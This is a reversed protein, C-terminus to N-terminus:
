KKGMKRMLDDYAKSKESKKGKVRKGDIETAKLKDAEANLQDILGRENINIKSGITLTGDRITITASINNSDDIAYKYVEIHLVQKEKFNLKPM